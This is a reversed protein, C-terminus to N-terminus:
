YEVKSDVPMKMQDNPHLLRQDGLTTSVGQLKMMCHYKPPAIAGAQTCLEVVAPAHGYFGRGENLLVQPDQPRRRWVTKPPVLDDVNAKRWFHTGQWSEYKFIGCLRAKHGSPGVHIESCHKCVKAPYVMLLKEVGNRLIDWARLTGSAVLILEDSSLSEAGDVGVCDSESNWNLHNGDNAGAQWCLEVVAPVREFDFRQHHKIVDQFMHKLHFTEVPVLVDKLGGVIWEHVRNKGRRKFGCCTQILHGKEGIYVEPCFKCALVPVMKLLTSVGQLVLRRSDLVEQAVPVMAPVPYDKARNQIRKQIMPKLKRLDMKSRYYRAFSDMIKGNFNSRECLKKRLAM